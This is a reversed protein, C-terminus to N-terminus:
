VAVRRAEILTRIRPDTFDAAAFLAGAAILAPEDLSTTLGM